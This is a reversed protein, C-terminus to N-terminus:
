IGRRKRFTAKYGKRAIKVEIRHLDRVASQPWYGLLYYQSAERLMQDLVTNFDSAGAFVRGGTFEPLGGSRFRVRGPVISYTALNVKAAGSLAAVWLSWHTRSGRAPENTNCVFPSGICVAVKRKTEFSEIQEAIGAFRRLMDQPAFPDVYPESSGRYTDIRERALIRDGFAEDSANSLRVVAVEDSARLRDVISRAILQVVPTGARPVGLDDLLLVLTRPVDDTEGNVATFTKLGVERGDEKVSFDDVRLDPVPRGRADTVVVDLLVLDGTVEGQQARPVVILWILAALTAALLHRM